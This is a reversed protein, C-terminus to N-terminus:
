LDRKTSRSLFALIKNFLKGAVENSVDEPIFVNDSFQEIIKKDNVIKLKELEAYRKKITKRHKFIDLDASIKAKMMGKGLYFLSVMLDVVLLSFFMKRRTSSSYHTLLCYKRNRELWFFKKASWQLAYSSVHKIKVDPVFFSKINLCAARWGLDLDDHYLFLFPDFLGIKLM